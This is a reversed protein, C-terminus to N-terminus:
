EKDKNMASHLKLNMNLSFLSKLFTTRTDYNGKREDDEHSLKIYRAKM